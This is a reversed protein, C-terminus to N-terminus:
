VGAAKVREGEGGFGELLGEGGFVAGELAGEGVRTDEGADAVGVGVLDEVGGM